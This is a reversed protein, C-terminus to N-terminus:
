SMLNLVMDHDRDVLIAIRGNALGRPLQICGRSNLGGMKPFQM